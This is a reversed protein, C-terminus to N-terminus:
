TYRVGQHQDEFFPPLLADVRLLGERTLRVQQEDIEAFGEEVHSNWEAKWNDVIDVGFGAAGVYQRERTSLVRIRHYGLDRVIQAGLGIDRWFERRM